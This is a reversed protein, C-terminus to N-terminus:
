RRVIRVPAVTSRTLGQADRLEEFQEPTMQPPYAQVIM